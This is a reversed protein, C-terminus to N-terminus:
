GANGRNRTEFLDRLCDDASVQVVSRGRAEAHAVTFGGGRKYLFLDLFCTGGAYRWIEAPDDRRKFGPPGLFATVEQPPLGILEGARPLSPAGLSGLKGGDKGIAEMPPRTASALPDPAAGAFASVVVNDATSGALAAPVGPVAPAEPSAPAVPTVTPASLASLEEPPASTGCAALFAAHTLIMGALRVRRAARTIARRRFRPVSLGILIM